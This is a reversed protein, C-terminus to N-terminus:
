GQIIRLVMGSKVSSHKLKNIVKIEEETGNFMEAISSLTDGEQVTYKIVVDEAVYSTVKVARETAPVIYALKLDGEVPETKLMEERLATYIYPKVEPFVLTKPAEPTGNIILNRYAPNFLVLDDINVNTAKAISLLSVKRNVQIANTFINFNPKTPYIGHKKANNMVYVTAIYAPVYNQTEVPLYKRIAWYDLEGGGANERAWRINNHGCNYSAIALLWDNYMSYSNLLYKAAAHSALVPDRREDIEDNITLGYLKGVPALFQWPGAAGAWSTAQPNLASEVVSLYKLEDPVGMEKFVREYIPFYYTSLGLMRSFRAKQSIYSKVTKQVAQNSTLPVTKQLDELSRDLPDVSASLTINKKSAFVKTGLSFGSLGVGSLLVLTLTLAKKMM